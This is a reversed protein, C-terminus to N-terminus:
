GALYIAPNPQFPEKSDLNVIICPPRVEPHPIDGFPLERFLCWLGGKLIADVLSARSVDALQTETYRAFRDHQEERDLQIIVKQVVRRPGFAIETVTGGGPSMFTIAPNRKDEFIVSGIQVQSGEKVKLRPKVFPIKEPVLAVFGPTERSSTEPLPTGTINLDYGKKSYISIM